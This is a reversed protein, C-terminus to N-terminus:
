PQAGNRRFPRAGAPLLALRAVEPGSALPLDAHLILVPGGALSKLAAELAGNLGETGPEEAMLLAGPVPELAAPDPTLVIPEAGAQAVAEVVTRLTALALRRRQDPDLVAALRGKARHPLAM